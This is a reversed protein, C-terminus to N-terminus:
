AFERTEAVGGQDVAMTTLPFLNLADAACGLHDPQYSTAVHYDIHTLGLSQMYGLAKGCDAPTGGDFLVVQGRPSILVAGDGQGVDMFHLRLTGAEQGRVGPRTLLCLGLVFLIISSRGGSKSM